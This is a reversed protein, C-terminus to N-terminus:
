EGGLFALVFGTQLHHKFQGPKPILQLFQRLLASASPSLKRRLNCISHGARCPLSKGM